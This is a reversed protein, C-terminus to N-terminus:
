EGKAWRASIRIPVPSIGCVLLYDERDRQLYGLVQTGTGNLNILQASGAVNLNYRHNDARREPCIGDGTHVHRGESGYPADGQRVSAVQHNTDFTQFSPAVRDLLSHRPFASKM